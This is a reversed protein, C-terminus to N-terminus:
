CAGIRRECSVIEMWGGGSRRKYCPTARGTEAAECRVPSTKHWMYEFVRGSLDDDLATELLWDRWRVYDERPRSRITDRSVAFQSCCSVGVKEPVEVGPLLEQFAQKYIEKTTLPRGGSGTGMSRDWESAEDKHPRIEVPCGLVQVCRLNVYGSSQVYDLHLNRLAPLSDYDPDDNHWAFRSAHIFVTTEALTDYNAVIHTLYVMAERGKNEPVTLPATPEDVVYVSRAWGPLFRHVWTTDESSVSAVVVEVPPEETFLSWDWHPHFHVVLLWSCALLILIPIVSGRASASRVLM